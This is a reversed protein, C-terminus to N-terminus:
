YLHFIREMLKWKEASTANTITQQFRATLNEWEEQRPLTSMRTMAENWDIDTPMEVIMFLRTGVLYIEMELIGVAHIGQLIEPWIGEESHLRRYEAILEPEDKLDLTQCFRKTEGKFHKVPYGQTLDTMM